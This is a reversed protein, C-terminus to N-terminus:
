EDAPPRPRAPAAAKASPREEVSEPRAAAKPQPIQFVQQCSPCKAKKGAHEDAASVEKSCHPCRFKIMSRTRYPKATGWRSLRRSRSPNSTHNDERAPGRDVTRAPERACKGYRKGM